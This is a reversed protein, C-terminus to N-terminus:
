DFFRSVRISFDGLVDPVSLEADFGRQGGLHFIEDRTQARSESRLFPPDPGIV